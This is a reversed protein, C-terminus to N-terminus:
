KNKVDCVVVTMDPRKSAVDHSRVVSINTKYISLHERSFHSFLGGYKVSTICFYYQHLCISKLSHLISDFLSYIRCINM